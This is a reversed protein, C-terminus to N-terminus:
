KYYFVFTTANEYAGTAPAYYYVTYNDTTSGSADQVKVGTVKVFDGEVHDFGVTTNKIQYVEKGDPVAFIVCTTGIPVTVTRNSATFASGQATMGTGRIASTCDNGSVISATPVFGSTKYGYFSGQQYTNIRVNRDCLTTGLKVQPSAVDGLNNYAAPLSSSWERYYQFAIYLSGSSLTRDNSTYNSLAVSNSTGLGSRSTFSFSSTTTNIAIGMRSTGLYSSPTITPGYTYSPNTQYSFGVTCASVDLVSGKEVNYTAMSTNISSSNAAVNSGTNAVTITSGLRKDIVKLTWTFRINGQSISPQKAVQFMDKFVETVSKGKTNLQVYGATVESPAYKGVDETIKIDEEFYTEQALASFDSIITMHGTRTKMISKSVSRRDEASTGAVVHTQTFIDGENYRDGSIATEYDGTTAVGDGDWDFIGGFIIRGTEVDVESTVGAREDYFDVKIGGLKVRKTKSALDYYLRGDEVITFQGLNLPVDEINVGDLEVFEVPSSLTSITTERMM